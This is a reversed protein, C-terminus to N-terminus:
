SWSLGSVVFPNLAPPLLCPVPTSLDSERGLHIEGQCSSCTLSPFVGQGHCTGIWSLAEQISQCTWCCDCGPWPQLISQGWPLASSVSRPGPHIKCLQKISTCLPLM